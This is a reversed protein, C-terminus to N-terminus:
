YNVRLLASRVLSNMGTVNFQCRDLDDQHYQKGFQQLDGHGELQYDSGATINFTLMMIHLRVNDGNEIEMQSTRKSM